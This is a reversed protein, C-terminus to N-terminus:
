AILFNFEKQCSFRLNFLVSYFRIFFFNSFTPVFKVKIGVKHLNLRLESGVSQDLSSYEVSRGYEQVGTDQVYSYEVSRGYEKVGTDQVYSYEVSWGYEKVGTDQVYSYEVSRGYEQVGTDQVYSYEVSRGYEQARPTEFHRVQSITKLSQVKKLFM